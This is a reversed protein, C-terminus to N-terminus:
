WYWIQPGRLLDGQLEGESSHSVTQTGRQHEEEGVLYSEERLTRQEGAQRM